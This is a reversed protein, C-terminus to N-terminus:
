PAMQRSQSAVPASVVNNFHIVGALNHPVVANAGLTLRAWDVYLKDAAAESSLAGSSTYFDIGTQGAVSISTDTGAAHLVNNIYYLISAGGIVVKLTNLGGKKIYPSYVWPVLAFVQGDVLKWISFYGNNTYDFYYGTAWVGNPDPKGAGRIIIENGCGICGSRYMRVQYVMDKYVGNHVIGNYSGGTGISTYFNEGELKWTGVVPAWGAHDGTFSSDFNTGFSPSALVAFPVALLTIIISLFTFFKIQKM